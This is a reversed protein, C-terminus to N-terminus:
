PVVKVSYARTMTVHCFLNARIRVSCTSIFKIPSKLISPLHSGGFRILDCNTRICDFPNSLQAMQVITESISKYGNIRDDYTHHRIEVAGNNNFAHRFLAAAAAAATASNLDFQTFLNRRVARYM